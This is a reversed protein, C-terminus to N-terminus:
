RRTQAFFLEACLRTFQRTPIDHEEAAHRCFEKISGVTLAFPTPDLAAHVQHGNSSHANHSLTRELQLETSQNRSGPPRGRRKPEPEELEQKVKKSYKAAIGEIAHANRRHRGLHARTTFSDDKCEPCVFPPGQIQKTPIFVAADNDQSSPSLVAEAQQETQDADSSFVINPPTAFSDRGAIGHASRMHSGLGARTRYTTPCQQCKFPEGPVVPEELKKRHHALTSKATGEIGHTRLHSGLGTGRKFTRPCHPCKLKAAFFSPQVPRKPQVAAKTM